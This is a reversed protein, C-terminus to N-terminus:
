KVVAGVFRRQLLYSGTAFIAVDLALGAPQFNQPGKGNLMIVADSWTNMVGSFACWAWVAITASGGTFPKRRQISWAALVAIAGPVVLFPLRLDFWFVYPRPEFIAALREVAFPAGLFLAAVVIGTLVRARSAILTAIAVVAALALTVTAVAVLAV